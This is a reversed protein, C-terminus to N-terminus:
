LVYPEGVDDAADDRQRTGQRHDHVDDGDQQQQAVSAVPVSSGKKSGVVGCQKDDDSRVTTSSRSQKHLATRFDRSSNGTSMVMPPTTSDTYGSSSRSRGDGAIHLRLFQTNFPPMVSMIVHTNARPVKDM